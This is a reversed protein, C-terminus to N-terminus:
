GTAGTGGGDPEAPVAETVNTPTIMKFASLMERVEKLLVGTTAYRTRVRVQWTRDALLEPVIGVIKSPSNEILKATVGIAVTPAGASVFAVGVGKPDTGAIEISKGLITFGGGPTVVENVTGSAADHFERIYAAVTGETLYFDMLDALKQLGRLTRTHFTVPHEKPDIIDHPGNFLGGLNARTAVLGGFNVGFGDMLRYKAEEFYQRIVAAAEDPNGPFGARDRMSAVIDETDLMEENKTYAIFKGESGLLHSERLEAEVSHRKAHKEDLGLAM